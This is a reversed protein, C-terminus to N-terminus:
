TAPDERVFRGGIITGRPGRAQDARRVSRSHRPRAAPATARLHAVRHEVTTWARDSVGPHAARDVEAVATALRELTAALVRAARVPTLGWSTAEDVLDQGTLGAMDRRGNVDMAFRDDAYAHHTHMAVDYAPAV